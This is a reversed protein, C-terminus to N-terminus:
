DPDLDRAEVRSDISDEGPTNDSIRKNGRAHLQTPSAVKYTGTTQPHAINSYGLNFEQNTARPTDLITLRVAERCGSWWLLSKLIACALERLAVALM